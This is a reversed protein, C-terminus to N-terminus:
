RRGGGIKKEIADAKKRLEKVREALIEPGYRKLAANVLDKLIAGSSVAEDLMQAVDDEAEFSRM